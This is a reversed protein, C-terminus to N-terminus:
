QVREVTYGKARMLAPLGDEGLLHGAGVTVLDVGSGHMEADLKEAWALNRTRFLAAYMEPARKKMEAVVQEALANEDGAAWAAAMANVAAPAEKGGKLIEHLFAVQSAESMTALAQVQDGVTEFYRVPKHDAAAAANVTTEAGTETQLGSGSLNAGLVMIAAFWPQLRAALKADLGTPQLTKVLRAFDRRGIRAQLRGQADLGEAAMEARAQEMGTFVDAELWVEGAEAYVRDYFPTRWQTDASTVHVTGFLYITSDADKVAWIAPAAQASGAACLLAACAAALTRSLRKM